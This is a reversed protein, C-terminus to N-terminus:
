HGQWTDGPAQASKTKLCEQPRCAELPEALNKAAICSIQIDRCKMHDLNVIEYVEERSAGELVKNPIRPYQIFQYKKSTTVGVFVERLDAQWVGQL